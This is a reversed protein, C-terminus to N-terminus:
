AFIKTTIGSNKAASGGERDGDKDEWLEGRSDGAYALPAPTAAAEWACGPAAGEGPFVCVSVTCSCLM